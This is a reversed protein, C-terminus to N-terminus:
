WFSPHKGVGYAFFYDALGDCLAVLTWLAFVLVFRKAFATMSPRLKDSACAAACRGSVAFGPNDPKRGRVM